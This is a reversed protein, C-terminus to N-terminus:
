RAAGAWFRSRSSWFRWTGSREAIMRGWTYLRSTAAPVCAGGTGDLTRKVVSATDHRITRLRFGSGTSTPRTGDPGKPMVLRSQRAAEHLDSLILGFRPHALCAPARSAIEVVAKASPSAPKGERRPVRCGHAFAEPLPMGKHAASPAIVLELPDRRVVASTAARGRGLGRLYFRTCDVPGAVRGRSDAPGSTDHSLSM